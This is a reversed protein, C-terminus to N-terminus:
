GGASTSQALLRLAQNEAAKHRLTKSVLALPVGSAPMLSASPHRLDHIGCRPLGAQEFLEHFRRLVFEPRLRVGDEWAIVLGRDEYGRDWKVRDLEQQVPQRRLADVVRNSLGIM